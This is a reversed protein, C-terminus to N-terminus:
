EFTVDLSFLNDRRAERKAEELASGFLDAFEEDIGFRRDPGASVFVIRANPAVGYKIENYTRITGDPDRQLWLGDYSKWVRGPHIAYIPTGWADLYTNSGDFRTNLADLEAPTDIWSPPLAARYKYVASGQMGAALHSRVDDSRGIVDMIENIIFVEPTDSRVDCTQKSGLADGVQWWTLPRNAAADWESMAAALVGLTSRTRDADARTALARGSALVIAVLAVIIAIVVLLEILSFAPDPTRRRSKGTAGEGRSGNM